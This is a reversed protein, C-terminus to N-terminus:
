AIRFLNAHPSSGSLLDRCGVGNDQLHQKLANRKGDRIRLSYQNWVHGAAMDQFPLEFTDRLGADTFLEAYRKANAQRAATYSDLHRLKVALVAAQMTDLRSNIGVVHHYYRPQMGHAAFLRLKAALSDDNCVMMGGDGM